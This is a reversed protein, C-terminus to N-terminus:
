MPFKAYFINKYSYKNKVLQWTYPLIDFESASFQCTFFNVSQFHPRQFQTVGNKKM